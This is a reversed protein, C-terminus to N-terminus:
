RCHERSRSFLADCRGGSSAGPLTRTCYDATTLTHMIRGHVLVAFLIAVLAVLGVATRAMRRGARPAQGPM